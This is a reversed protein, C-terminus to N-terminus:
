GRAKIRRRRHNDSCTLQKEARRLEGSTMVVIRERVREAAVHMAKPSNREAMRGPHRAAVTDATPQGSPLM